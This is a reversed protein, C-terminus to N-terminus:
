ASVGVCKGDSDVERDGVASGINSGVTNGVMNGETNGVRWVVSKGDVSGLPLGDRRGVRM